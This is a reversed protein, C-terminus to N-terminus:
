SAVDKAGLQKPLKSSEFVAVILAHSTRALELLEVAQKDSEARAKESTAAVLRWREAEECKEKYFRRPVLLGMFLMLVAIGVLVPATLKDVPIGNLM